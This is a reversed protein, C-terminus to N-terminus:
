GIISIMDTREVFSDSVSAKGLKTGVKTSGFESKGLDNIQESVLKLRSFITM